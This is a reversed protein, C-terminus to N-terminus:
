TYLPHFSFHFVLFGGCMLSLLPSWRKMSLIYLPNEPIGLGCTDRSGGLPRPATFWPAPLSRFPAGRLGHRLGPRRLPAWCTFVWARRLDPRERHMGPPLHGTTPRPCLEDEGLPRVSVVPLRCSVWHIPGSPLRISYSHATQSIGIPMTPPTRYKMSVQKLMKTPSMLNAIDPISIILEQSWGTCATSTRFSSCPCTIHHRLQSASSPVSFWSPLLTTSGM